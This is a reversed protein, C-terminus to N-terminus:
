SVLRLRPRKMNAVIALAMEHMQADSWCNKFVNVQWCVLRLNEIEYGRDNDIRDLSISTPSKKGGNGSAWTLKVGSVACRGGQNEYLVTLDEVTAINETPRRKSASYLMTYLVYRPSSRQRRRGTETRGQKQEESMNRQYDRHYDQLKEKKDPRNKYNEWFKARAAKAGETKSYLGVIRGRCPKCSDTHGDKRGRHRHFETLPREQGCAYCVKSPTM